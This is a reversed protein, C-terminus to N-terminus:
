YGLIIFLLRGHRVAFVCVCVCVCASVLILKPSYPHLVIAGDNGLSGQVKAVIKLARGSFLQFNFKKSDRSQWWNINKLISKTLPFFLNSARAAVSHLCPLDEKVSLRFFTLVQRCFKDMVKSDKKLSSKLGLAHSQNPM